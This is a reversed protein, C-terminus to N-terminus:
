KEDNKKRGKEHNKTSKEKLQEILKVYTLDNCKEEMPVPFMGYTKMREILEIQEKCRRIKRFLTEMKQELYKGREMDSLVLLYKIEKLQFGM